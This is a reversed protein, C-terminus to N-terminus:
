NKKGSYYDYQFKRDGATAATSLLTSGASIYSAQQANRGAMRTLGSQAMLNSSQSRFGYAEREANSRITLADLEGLQATDMLVDLPSGNDIEVGNAAMGARQAGHLRATQLRQRQEEIKGRQQADTAQWGAITANNREVASQYKAQKAQAQGQMIAGGASIVGGAITAATAAGALTIGSAATAIAAGAATAAAGASAAASAAATGIATLTVPECM